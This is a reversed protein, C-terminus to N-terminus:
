FVRWENKHSNRLKKKRFSPRTGFNTKLCIRECVLMNHLVRKINLTQPSFYLRGTTKCSLFGLANITKFVGLFIKQSKFFLLFLQFDVDVTQFISKSFLLSVNIPFIWYGKESMLVECKRHHKHKNLVVM